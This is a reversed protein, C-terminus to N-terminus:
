AISGVDVADASDSGLEVGVIRSNGINSQTDSIRSHSLLEQVAYEESQDVISVSTNLAYNRNLIVGIM